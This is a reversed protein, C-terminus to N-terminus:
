ADQRGISLALAVDEDVAAQEEFRGVEMAELRGAIWDRLPRRPKAKTKTVPAALDGNYVARISAVSRRPRERASSACCCSCPAGAFLLSPVTANTVEQLAPAVGENLRATASSWENSNPRAISPNEAASAASGAHAIAWHPMASLRHFLGNPTPM